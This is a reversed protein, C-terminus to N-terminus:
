GPQAELQDHDPLLAEVNRISPIVYGAACTLALALGGFIFLLSMGSGPGNGVLSGFTRALGSMKNQMAPELVFDALTGALIPSVPQTIWAILRRAAFVRGQVDPAVKAQWIAQSSGMVVPGLLTVLVISPIWVGLGQGLGFGVMGFLNSVLWVGLIGHIRRKFGGWASMLIGGAVGGIAAVTQVSGFIVSDNGTRSLILPAFVTWAMGSFLNAVLFLGVLGRLGPRAFIYKFGYAAEKWLGGRGKEGELTAKPQPIHVISLAGIALIFTAVDLCLVGGLGILPLLAGAMLPAFVGPGSEVLSMMGNARGYQEKPLMTSIAASYAPWQFTNGLGNLIAAFYLHWFQLHGTSYLLLIGLTAVVAGLDSLMMMLKRNCRDVLAGALPSVVLFPTIFFVQMLGMATASGTQQFMWITLAFHSMSSALVSVIQGLWVITFGTLGSPRKHPIASPFTTEM